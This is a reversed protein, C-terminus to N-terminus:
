RGAEVPLGRAQWGGFGDRLVAVDSRGRRELISAGTMAREHHGCMTTIPGDPLDAGALSGLEIHLAGPVHGARQEHEQRVDLTTGRRGDPEVVTITETARGSATWADIGGELYGALDEFGITLCQRVLDAEDQDADIVFVLAADPAVTWGLWSAFGGRLAISVAGTIHAEAFSDAPRVDVVVAGDVILKATTDADLASLHPLKEHHRVGRRNLEPLRLFYSPVTGLSGLLTAVFEEETTAALLPNTARERGITSTREGNSPASCFSGAGHTPYVALDDPLTLVDAQLSRYLRRALDAAHEAGLLDTRGVAGVMLSGGSFLAVPVGGDLLLYALHEPTHGPTAIARLVLTGLRLEDGGRVGRHDVRLDAEAPALFEAGAAATLDPSGSIYDAHSHTDATYAICLGRRLAEAQQAFPLRAPDVILATGDGLDVLYSTHGLGEDVFSAIRTNIM